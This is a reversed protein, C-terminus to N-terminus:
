VVDAFTTEMRKFYILGSVLLVVMTVASVLISSDLPKAQGLLAWRFGEVVGVMPNLGYLFRWQEPVLSSSYAIPTAFLWFQTLFPITYQVDRYQVNLASLWLGVALATLLALLVFGPVALLAWGPTVGFYFMMGLFVVFAIAFDALGVFVTAVPV